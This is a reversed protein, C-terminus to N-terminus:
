MVQFICVTLGVDSIQKHLTKPHRGTKCWMVGDEVTFTEKNSTDNNYYSGAIQPGSIWLEGNQRPKTVTEGDSHVFQLPLRALPM